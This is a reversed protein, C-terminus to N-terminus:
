CTNYRVMKRQLFWSGFCSSAYWWTKKQSRPLLINDSFWLPKSSFYIDANEKVNWKGLFAKASISSCSVLIRQCCRIVTVNDRLTLLNHPFFPSQIQHLLYRSSWALIKGYVKWKESIKFISHFIGPFNQRYTTLNWVQIWKWFAPHWYAHFGHWM